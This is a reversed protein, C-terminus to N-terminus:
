AASVDLRLHIRSRIDRLRARRKNLSRMEKVWTLKKVKTGNNDGENKALSKVYVGLEQLMSQAEKLEDNIDDLGTEPTASSGPPHERSVLFAKRAELLVAKFDNIENFLAIFDDEAELFNKRLSRIDKIITSSAGILTVIGSVM